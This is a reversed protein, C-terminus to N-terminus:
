LRVGRAMSSALVLALAAIAVAGAVFTTHAQAYAVVAEPRTAVFAAGAGAGVTAVALPGLWDTAGSLAQAPPRSPWRRELGNMGAVAVLAWAAAVLYGGVIDAPFHWALVMLAYGIAIAFGGGVAAVTRRRVAPAALVACLALAMAATAHGSPWSATVPHGVGLWDSVRPTILFKLAETTAGAGVLIIPVALAVRWRGRALAIAILALGALAFPLPDVLHVLHDALTEVRPRKLGVFGEMAAQEHQNATYSLHFLLGTLALANLCGFAALLPPGPRRLV